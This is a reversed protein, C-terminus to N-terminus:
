QPNRKTRHATTEIETLISRLADVDHAFRGLFLGDVAGDLQPFLGPGASGGYLVRASSARSDLHARLGRGVARIHEVPAPSEAGIAWVPEYAVLLGNGGAADLAPDVSDICLAIAKSPDVPEPEGICVLPTIGARVAAVTKTAVTEDTELFLRRREAHGIEAYRVGAEALMGATVEGTYAGPGFASVDQAGIGVGHPELLRRCDAISLASPVVFLDVSTPRKELATALLEAWRRTEAIGLYAKLSVGVLPNM